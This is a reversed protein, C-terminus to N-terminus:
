AAFYSRLTVRLATWIQQFFNQKPERLSALEAQNEPEALAQQELFDIATQSATILEDDGLTETRVAEILRVIRRQEINRTTSALPASVAFACLFLYTTDASTWHSPEVPPKCVVRLFVKAFTQCNWFLTQYDGFAEVLTM